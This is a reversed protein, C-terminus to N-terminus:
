ISRTMRYSLRHSQKDRRTQGQDRLAWAVCQDWLAFFSGGFRGPPQQLASDVVQATLSFEGLFGQSLLYYCLFWRPAAM